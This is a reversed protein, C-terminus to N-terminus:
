KEIQWWILKKLLADVSFYLIIGFVIIVLLVAFMLDIEMRANANLMLFGLGNSSGVWEGIIAGIPAAATAIRLGSALSPLAAPVRIQWLINWRSANMIKALDLWSQETRKLGDFFNSAIPFFLMLLTTAIKSAMGYGFWIVLLPAIAFTPLAQSIILIPLLWLRLPQFYAMTLALLCGFFTALFLGILTELITIWAQAAILPAQLYLTKLVLFPGPLIYIPFQFVWVLMQWLIFLTFIVIIGRVYIM